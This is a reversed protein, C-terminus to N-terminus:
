VEEIWDKHVRYGLESAVDVSFYLEGNITLFYQRGHFYKNPDEAEKARAQGVLNKLSVVKM